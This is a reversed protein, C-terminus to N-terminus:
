CVILCRYIWRDCEKKWNLDAFSEISIPRYFQDLILCFIMIQGVVVTQEILHICVYVKQKRKEMM